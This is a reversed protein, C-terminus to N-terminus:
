FHRNKYCKQRVIDPVFEGHPSMVRKGHNHLAYTTLFVRLPDQRVHDPVDDDRSHSIGTLDLQICERFSLGYSSHVVDTKYVPDSHQKPPQHMNDRSNGDGLLVVKVLPVTGHRLMCRWLRGDLM